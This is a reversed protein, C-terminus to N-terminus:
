ATGSADPQGSARALSLKLVDAIVGVRPDLDGPGVLAAEVAALTAADGYRDALVRIGWHELDVTISEDAEFWKIWLDVCGADDRRWEEDWVPDLGPYRRLFEPVLGEYLVSAGREAEPGDHIQSSNLPLGAEAMFEDLLSRLADVFRQRRDGVDLM